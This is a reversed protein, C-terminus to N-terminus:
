NILMESERSNSLPNELLFWDTVYPMYGLGRACRLGIGPARARNTGTVRHDRSGVVRFDERLRYVKLHHFEM